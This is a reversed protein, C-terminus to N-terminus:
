EMTFVNKIGHFSEKETIIGGILATHPINPPQKEAKFIVTQPM